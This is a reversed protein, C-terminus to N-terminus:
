PLPYSSANSQCCHGADSQDHSVTLLVPAPAIAEVLVSPVIYCVPAIAIGGAIGGVVRHGGSLLLATEAQPQFGLM